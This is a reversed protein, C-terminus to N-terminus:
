ASTLLKWYYRISGLEHRKKVEDLGAQVMRANLRPALYHITNGVVLLDTRILWRCIWSDRVLRITTRKGNLTITAANIKVLM